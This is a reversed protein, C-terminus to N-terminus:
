KAPAGEAADGDILAELGSIRVVRGVPASMNVMRLARGGERLRGAALAIAGIGSSDIFTLGLCDVIVDGELETAGAIRERLDAVNSIDIEGALHVTPM